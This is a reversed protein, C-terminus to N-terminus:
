LIRRNEARILIDIIPPVIQQLELLCAEAMAVAAQFEERTVRFPAFEPSESDDDPSDFIEFESANIARISIGPHGMWIGTRDGIPLNAAKIWEDFYQLTHCCRPNIVLGSRIELAYGGRFLTYDAIRAQIENLKQPTAQAIESRLLAYLAPYNHLLQGINIFDYADRYVTLGTVNISALSLRWYEAHDITRFLALDPDFNPHRYESTPLNILPVLKFMIRDGM